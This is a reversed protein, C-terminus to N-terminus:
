DKRKKAGAMTTKLSDLFRQTEEPGETRVSRGERFDAEAKAIGAQVGPTHFWLQDRPIVESPILEFAGNDCRDVRLQTGAQLGLERRMGQPITTRGKQDVTLFGLVKTM